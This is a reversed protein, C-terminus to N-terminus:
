SEKVEYEGLKYIPGANIVEQLNNSFQASPFSSEHTTEWAGEEVFICWIGAHNKLRLQQGEAVKYICGDKGVYVTHGDLYGVAQNDHYSEKISLLPVMKAMKVEEQYNERLYSRLAREAIESKTLGAKRSALTLATDLNETLSLNPRKTKM